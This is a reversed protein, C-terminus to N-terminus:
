TDAGCLFRAGAETEPAWELCMLGPERVERTRARACLAGRALAGFEVRHQIDAVLSKDLYM